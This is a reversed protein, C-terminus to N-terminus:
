HRRRKRRQRALRQRAVPSRIDQRRGPATLHSEISQFSALEDGDEGAGSPRAGRARLLALAHSADAYQHIESGIIDFSLRPERGEELAQLFGAPRNPLVHADVKAPASAICFGKALL